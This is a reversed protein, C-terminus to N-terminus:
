ITAGTGDPADRRVADALDIPRCITIDAVPPGPVMSRRAVATAYREIEDPDNAIEDSWPPVPELDQTRRPQLDPQHEGSVDIEWAPGRGFPQGAAPLRMVLFGTDDAVEVDTGSRRTLVVHLTARAPGVNLADVFSQITDTAGRLAYDAPDYGDALNWRVPWVRRDGDDFHDLESEPVGDRSLLATRTPDTSDSPSEIELRASTNSLRVVRGADLERTLWEIWAALCSHMLTFRGGAYACDYIFPGPSGPHDLEVMRFWHSEYAIPFLVTSPWPPREKRHEQWTGLAFSLECLPPAFWSAAGDISWTRYFREIDAPLTFPAIAAVITDVMEIQRIDAAPMTIGYREGVRVLEAVAADLREVSTM